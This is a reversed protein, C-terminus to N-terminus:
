QIDHHCMLRKSQIFQIQTYLSPSLSFTAWPTEPDTCSLPEMWLNTGYRMAPMWCPQWSMPALLKDMKRYTHFLTHKNENHSPKQSQASHRQVLDIIYEPSSFNSFLVMDAWISPPTWPRWEYTQGKVGSGWSRAKGGGGRCSRRIGHTEERYDGKQQWFIHCKSYLLLPVLLTHRLKVRIWFGKVTLHFIDTSLLMLTQRRKEEKRIWAIVNSIRKHWTLVDMHNDCRWRRRENMWSWGLNSKYCYFMIAVCSVSVSRKEKESKTVFFSEVSAPPLPLVRAPGLTGAGAAILLRM